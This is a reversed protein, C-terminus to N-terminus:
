KPDQTVAVHLCYSGCDLTLWWYSLWICVGCLVVLHCFCITGGPEWWYWKTSCHQHCVPSNWCAQICNVNTGYKWDPHLEIHIPSLLALPLFMCLFPFTSPSFPISTWPTPPLSCFLSIPLSLFPWLWLPIHHCCSPHCSPPSGTNCSCYPIWQCAHGTHVHAHSMSCPRWPNCINEHSCHRCILSAACHMHWAIVPYPNYICSMLIHMSTSWNRKKSSPCGLSAKPTESPKLFQWETAANELHNCNSKPHSQRHFRGGGNSWEVQKGWQM